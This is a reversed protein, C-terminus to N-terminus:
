SWNECLGLDLLECASVKLYLKLLRTELRRGESVGSFTIPERPRTRSWAGGSGATSKMKTWPRRPPDVFVHLM